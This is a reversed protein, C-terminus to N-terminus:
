HQRDLFACCGFFAVDPLLGILPLDSFFKVFHSASTLTKEFNRKQIFALNYILFYILPFELQNNIVPEAKKFCMM